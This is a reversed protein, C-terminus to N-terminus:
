IDACVCFNHGTRVRGDCDQQKICNLLLSYCISGEHEDNVSASLLQYIFSVIVPAAVGAPRAAHREVFRYELCGM